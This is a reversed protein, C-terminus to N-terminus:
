HKKDRSASLKLYISFFMLITCLSSILKIFYSEHFESTIFNFSMAWFVVFLFQASENLKSISFIENKKNKLHTKHLNGSFIFELSNIHYEWNTQWYKGAQSMFLTIITLLLGLITIALSVSLIKIPDAITSKGFYTTVALGLFTILAATLTWFYTARKWYLEIEFKRIDHSKNYAERLKDIDEQTFYDRYQLEDGLISIFYNRNNCLHPHHSRGDYSEKFDHKKNNSKGKGRYIECFM